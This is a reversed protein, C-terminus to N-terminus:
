SFETGKFFNRLYGLWKSPWNQIHELQQTQVNTLDRLKCFLGTVGHGPNHVHHQESHRSCPVPSREISEACFYTGSDGAQSSAIHLSFYRASKNLFFAFRGNEKIDANLQIATLFVLNKGLYQRYWL